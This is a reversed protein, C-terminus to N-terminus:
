MGSRDEPHEVRHIKAVAAQVAKKKDALMDFAKTLVAREAEM